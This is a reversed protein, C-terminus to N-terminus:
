RLFPASDVRYCVTLFLPVGFFGSYIRLGIFGKFGDFGTLGM